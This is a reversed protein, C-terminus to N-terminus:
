NVLLKFCRKCKNVKAYKDEINRMRIITFKKNKYLKGGYGINETVEEISLIKYQLGEQLLVEKENSYASFESLDFFQKNGVLDIEFLVPFKDPNEIEISDDDFAFGIAIKRLQTSSAFGTLTVFKGEEYKSAFEDFPLKLGRYVVM